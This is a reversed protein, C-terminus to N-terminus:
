VVPCRVSRWSSFEGLGLADNRSQIRSDFKLASEVNVRPVAADECHVVIRYVAKDDKIARCFAIRLGGPFQVRWMYRKSYRIVFGRLLHEQSELVVAGHDHEFLIRLLIVGRKAQQLPIGRTERIRVADGEIRLVTPNENGIMASHTGTM